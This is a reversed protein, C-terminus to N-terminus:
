FNCVTWICYPLVRKKCREWFVLLPNSFDRSDRTWGLYPLHRTYKGSFLIMVFPRFLKLIWWFPKTWLRSHRRAFSSDVKGIIYKKSVQCPCKPYGYSEGCHTDFNQFSKSIWSKMPDGRQIKLQFKHIIWQFFGYPPGWSTMLIFIMGSSQYESHHIRHIGLTDM